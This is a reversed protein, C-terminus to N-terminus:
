VGISTTLADVGAGTGPRVTFDLGDVWTKEGYRRVPRQAEIM